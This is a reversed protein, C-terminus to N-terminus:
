QASDKQAWLRLDRAENPYQWASVYNGHLYNAMVLHQLNYSNIPPTALPIFGGIGRDIDEFVAGNLVTCAAIRQGLATYPCGTNWKAQM